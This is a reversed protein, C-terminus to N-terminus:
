APVEADRDRLIWDEIDQAMKLLDTPADVKTAGYTAQQLAWQRLEVLVTDDSPHM